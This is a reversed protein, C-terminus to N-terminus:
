QRVGYFTVGLRRDPSTGTSCQARAAIRSGAPIPLPFYPSAMNNVLAIGSVSSGFLCHNPLIVQESAAAGVAIDLLWYLGGVSGSSPDTQNDLGLFFGNYDSTTAATLQVYSGKTNASSGPDVLTGLNTASLFGYTDVGSSGSTDSIFTDDWTYVQVATQESALSTSNRVVLRTGAGINLPFIYNITRIYVASAILNSVLVIESGSSGYGIDVAVGTSASGSAATRIMVQAWTSDATTAATIQSWAGKTFTSGGAFPSVVANAVAHGWQLGGRWAGTM